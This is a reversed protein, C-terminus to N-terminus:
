PLEVKAPMGALWGSKSPVSVSVRYGTPTQGDAAIASIKGQVSQGAVHVGLTQGLKLGAADKANLSVEAALRDSRAIRMLVPPQLRSSVTEGPAVAVSLVRADFPAVVRTHGRQWRRLSVMAKADTLKAKAQEQKILAQQRESDSAVTRDYLQQIREADRAAEAAARVLGERRAVAATVRDTFPRQDLTVLLAGKKVQQGARVPLQEVVGSVPVSVRIEDSWHLTGDITGAQAHGSLVIAALLGAAGHRLVARLRIAPLSPPRTQNM